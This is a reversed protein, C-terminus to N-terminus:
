CSMRMRQVNLIVVCIILGEFKVIFVYVVLFYASGVGSIVYFISTGPHNDNHPDLEPPQKKAATIKFNKTPLSFFPNRSKNLLTSSCHLQVVRHCKPTFLLPTAELKHIMPHFKLYQM